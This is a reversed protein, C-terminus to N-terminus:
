FELVQLPQLGCGLMASSCRVLLGGRWYDIGAMMFGVLQVQYSIVLLSGEM